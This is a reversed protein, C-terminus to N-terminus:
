TKQLFSTSMQLIHCDLLNLSLSYNSTSNGTPVELGMLTQLVAAKREPTTIDVAVLYFGECGDSLIRVPRSQGSTSVSGHEIRSERRWFHETKYEVSLDAVYDINYCGRLYSCGAAALVRIPGRACDVGSM